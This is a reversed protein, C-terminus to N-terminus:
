GYIDINTVVKKLNIKIHMFFYVINKNYKIDTKKKFRYAWSM